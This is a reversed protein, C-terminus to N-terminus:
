GDDHERKSGTVVFKAAGIVDRGFQQELYAAQKHAIKVAEISWIILKYACFALFILIVLNLLLMLPLFLFLGLVGFSAINPSSSIYPGLRAM